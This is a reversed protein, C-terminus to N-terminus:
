GPRQVRRTWGIIVPLIGGPVLLVLAVLVAGSIVNPDLGQVTGLRAIMMQLLICGILPGVLTGRGGVLVWILVQASLSLSFVNPSVFVCNAFLVGALGAIAGAVAFLILKYRRSDYGLLEARQENERISVIVQGFHTALLWRCGVYLLLLASAAVFWIDEPALKVSANWPINLPPTAPIGNFGGLAAKGIKYADGATANFLKFLILTITLTVVGVYVDGLRGWFIFYGVLAAFAAATAIALPVAATTDGFDIAAVAYAYAGLGFFATQGFSLIGGFGWVLGLSLALIAMTVYITANIVSYLDLYFPLIGILAAGGLVLIADGIAPFKGIM